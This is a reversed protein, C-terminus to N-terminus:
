EFRVLIEIWRDRSAAGSPNDNELVVVGTSGTPQRPFTIKGLFPVMQETMWDSQATVHSTALIKGKADTVLARASGEFFWSGLAQGSLSLPSLATTNTPPADVHILGATTTASPYYYVSVGGKSVHIPFYGTKVPAAVPATTVPQNSQTPQTAQAASPVTGTTVPAAAQKGNLAVLLIVIIIVLLGYIYYSTKM